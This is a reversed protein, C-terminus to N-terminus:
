ILLACNLDLLPLVPLRAAHLRQVAPPEAAPPPLLSVFTFAPAALQKVDESGSPLLPAPHAPATSGSCCGHGAPSCCHDCVAPAAMACGTVAQVPAVALGILLAFLFLLRTIM